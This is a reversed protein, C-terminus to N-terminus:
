SDNTRDDWSSTIRLDKNTLDHTLVGTKLYCNGNLEELLQTLMDM